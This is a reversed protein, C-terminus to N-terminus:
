ITDVCGLNVVNVVIPYDRRFPTRKITVYLDKEGDWNDVDKKTHPWLEHQSIWQRVSEPSELAGIVEISYVSAIRLVYIKKNEM